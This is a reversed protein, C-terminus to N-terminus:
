YTDAFRKNHLFIVEYYFCTSEKKKARNASNDMYIDELKSSPGGLKFNKYSKAWKLFLKGIVPRLSHELALRCLQFVLSYNDQNSCFPYYNELFM